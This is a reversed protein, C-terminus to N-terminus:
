EPREAIPSVGSSGQDPRILSTWVVDDERAARMIGGWIFLYAFALIEFILVFTPLAQTLSAVSM